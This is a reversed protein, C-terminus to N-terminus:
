EMKLKTDEKLVELLIEGYKGLAALMDEAHTLTVEWEGETLCDHLADLNKGYYAPFRFMEQLYRHAEGRSLMQKGDLIIKM